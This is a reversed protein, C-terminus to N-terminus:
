PTRALHILYGYIANTHGPDKDSMAEPHWQVFLGPGGDIRELAEVIGDDAHAVPRLGEGIRDVAQHHSSYVMATEAGLLEALTSDPTITVRHYVKKHNVDTGVLSPIDQIMSGGMVVNTFQMGLCVGLVPKGSAMWRAILMSDFRTRREPLIETTEHPQQSYMSPPIDKGGILVLGDLERIYRDVAEASDITPLVLPIGGTRLVAEVYALGVENVHRKEDYVTTIGILPKESVYALHNRCGPTCVWLVLLLTVAVKKM